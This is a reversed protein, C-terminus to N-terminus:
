TGKLNRRAVKRPAFHFCYMLGAAALLAGWWLNAHLEYLAVRYQPPHVLEYVATGLILAGDVFLSIGVFFWISISGRSKM